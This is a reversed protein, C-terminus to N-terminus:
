QKMEMREPYLAYAIDLLVNILRPGPRSLEDEDLGYLQGNRVANISEWGPRNVILEDMPLNTDFDILGEAYFIVDPNDAIVKEEDIHTWGTVDGAINYGGALEILEHMYEGQGVTFGPAFEVFVKKREEEPLDAVAATVRDMEAKMSAILAEAEVQHDTILGITAIVEFIDSIYQQDSRYLTQGLGRIAEAPEGQLSLGGVILDAEAALIAEINPDYVGGLKPLALAEEPYNCYDSVAVIRDGLGLAFLIETEAPSISAIREPAKEFTLEVGDADMITLPYTTRQSNEQQEISGDTENRDTTGINEKTEAIDTNDAPNTAGGSHNTQEQQSCAVLAVFLTFIIAIKWQTMKKM